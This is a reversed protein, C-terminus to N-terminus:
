EEVPVLKNRTTLIFISKGTLRGRQADCILGTIL